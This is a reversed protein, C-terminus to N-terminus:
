PDDRPHHHGLKKKKGQRWGPGRDSGLKTHEGALMIHEIPQSIPKELPAPTDSFEHDGWMEM